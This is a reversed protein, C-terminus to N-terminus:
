GVARRAVPRSGCPRRSAKATKRAASAAVMAYWVQRPGSVTAARGEVAGAGDAQQALRSGVAADAQCRAVGGLEELQHVFM